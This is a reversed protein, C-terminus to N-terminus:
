FSGFLLNRFLLGIRFVGLFFIRLYFFSNEIKLGGDQIRSIRFNRIKDVMKFKGFNLIEVM